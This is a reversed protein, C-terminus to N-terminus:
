LCPSLVIRVVTLAAQISEQMVDGLSGTKIVKGSGPIASTEINLLEGGVQTWALGTVQGIQNKSDGGFDFKRVGLLEELYKSQVMDKSVLGSKVHKTAIKRCIKAIAKELGRVGAEKTYFRITDKLAEREIEIESERLGNAKIQKPILYKDAIEVKEDETYGPIRIIEMRDLLPGPINILKCYLHVNDRCTTIM